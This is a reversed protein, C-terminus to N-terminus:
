LSKNEQKNSVMVPYVYKLMGSVRGAANWFMTSLPIPNKPQLTKKPLGYYKSTKPIWESMSDLVLLTGFLCVHTETVNTLNQLLELWTLGCISLTKMFPNQFILPKTYKQFIESGKKFYFPTIVPSTIRNPGSSFFIPPKDIQYRCYYTTGKNLM